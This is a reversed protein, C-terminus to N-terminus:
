RFVSSLYRDIQELRARLLFRALNEYESLSKRGLRYRASDTLERKEQPNPFRIMGKDCEVIGIEGFIELAALYSDPPIARAAAADRVETEAMTAQGVIRTLQRYIEGLADRSPHTKELHERGRKFSEEDFALYLTASGQGYPTHRLPGELSRRHFPLDWLVLHDLSPSPVAEGGDAGPRDYVRALVREVGGGLSELFGHKRDSGAIEERIALCTEESSTM